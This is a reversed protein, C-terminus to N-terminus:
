HVSGAKYLVYFLVCTYICTYINMSCVVFKYLADKLSVISWESAIYLTYQYALM